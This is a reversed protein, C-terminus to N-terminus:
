LARVSDWFAAVDAAPYVTECPRGDLDADMRAPRDETLWYFVALGYTLHDTEPTFHGPGYGPPPEVLDRCLLGGPYDDPWPSGGCCEALDWVYRDGDLISVHIGGFEAPDDPLFGCVITQWAGLQGSADCDVVGPGTPYDREIEIKLAQELDAVTPPATTTASTASTATSSSVAQSSSSTVSSATSAPTTMTTSPAASTESGSTAAGDGADDGGNGDGSGCGGAVLLGLLAVLWPLPPRRRGTDGNM